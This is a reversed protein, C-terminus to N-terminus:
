RRSEVKEVTLFQKVIRKAASGATFKTIPGHVDICSKLCGSIIRLIQPEETRLTIRKEEQGSLTFGKEKVFERMRKLIAKKHNVSELAATDRLSELPEEYDIDEYLEEFSFHRTVIDNVGDGLVAISIDQGKKYGFWVEVSLNLNIPVENIRPKM